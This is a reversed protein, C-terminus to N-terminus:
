KLYRDISAFVLSNLALAGNKYLSYKILASKMKDTNM